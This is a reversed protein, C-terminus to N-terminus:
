SESEEPLQVLNEIIINNFYIVTTTILIKFRVFTTSYIIYMTNQVLRVVNLCVISVQPHLLYLTGIYYIISPDIASVNFLLDDSMLVMCVM